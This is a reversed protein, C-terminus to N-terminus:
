LDVEPDLGLDRALLNCYAEAITWGGSVKTQKTVGDTLRQVVVRYDFKGESEDPSTIPHIWARFDAPRKM